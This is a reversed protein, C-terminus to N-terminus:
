EDTTGGVAVCRMGMSAYRDEFLDRDYAAPGDPKLPDNFYYLDEDYGIFVMCHENSMWTFSEGTPRGDDDILAWTTSPYAEKMDITTWVLVPEGRDIYSGALEEMSMGTLDEAWLSEPLYQSLLRVIVPPYCGYGSDKRPDGIYADDPSPACLTGDPLLAFDATELAATLSDLSPACGYYDLLMYASLTECGTPLTDIQSHYPVSILAPTDSADTEPRIQASTTTRSLASCTARSSRAHSIDAFIRLATFFVTISLCIAALIALHCFFRKM